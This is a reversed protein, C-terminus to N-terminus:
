IFNQFLRKFSIKTEDAVACVAFILLELNPGIGCFIGVGWQSKTVSRDRILNYTLDFTVVDGYKNYLAQM